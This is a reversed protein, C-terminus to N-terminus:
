ALSHISLRGFLLSKFQRFFFVTAFFVLFAADFVDAAPDFTTRIL